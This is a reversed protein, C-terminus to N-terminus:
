GLKDAHATGCAKCVLLLAGGIVPRQANNPAFCWSTTARKKM